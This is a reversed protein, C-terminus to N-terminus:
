LSSPFGAQALMLCARPLHSTLDPESKDHQRSQSVRIILIALAATFGTCREQLSSSNFNFFKLFSADNFGEIIHERIFHYRIDIHKTRLHLVPNNSIAIASTNECFIPVMKYQIAYDTLQSKMMLINACCGVAAVHKAEVSSMTM